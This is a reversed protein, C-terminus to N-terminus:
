GGHTMCSTDHLHQSLSHLATWAATTPPWFFQCFTIHTPAGLADWAAQYEQFPTTDATAGNLSM